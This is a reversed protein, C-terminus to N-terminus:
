AKGQPLLQVSVEVTGPGQSPPGLFSHCGTATVLPLRTETCNDRGPTFRPAGQPELLGAAQLLASCTRCCPLPWPAARCARCDAQASPHPQALAQSASHSSVHGPHDSGRSTHLLAPQGLTQPRTARPEVQPRNGCLSLDPPLQPWARCSAPCLQTLGARAVPRPQTRLPVPARHAPGHLAGQEQWHASGCTGATTPTPGPFHGAQAGAEWARSPLPLLAGRWQTWSQSRVAAPNRFVAHFWPAWTWGLAPARPSWTGSGPRQACLQCQPTGVSLSSCCGSAPVSTPQRLLFARRGPAPLASHSAGQPPKGVPPEDWAPHGQRGKSGPARTIRRSAAWSSQLLCLPGPPHPPPPRHPATPARRHGSVALLKTDPPLRSWSDTVLSCSPGSVWCSDGPAPLWRLLRASHSASPPSCPCPSALRGLRPCQPALCSTPPRGRWTWCGRGEPEEQEQGHPSDLTSPRPRATPSLTRLARSVKEPVWLLRTPPDRSPWVQKPWQLGDPGCLAVQLERSAARM